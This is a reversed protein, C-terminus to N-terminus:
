HLLYFFGSRRDHYAQVRHQFIHRFLYLLFSKGLVSLCQLARRFGDPLKVLLDHVLGPIQDRRYLRLDGHILLEPDRSKHSELLRHLVALFLSQHHDTVDLTSVNTRRGRSVRYSMQSPHFYSTLLIHGKPLVKHGHIGIKPRVSHIGEQIHAFFLLLTNENKHLSGIGGAAFELILLDLATGEILQHALLHGGPSRLQHAFLVTIHACHYSGGIWLHTLHQALDHGFGIDQHGAVSGLSSLALVQYM